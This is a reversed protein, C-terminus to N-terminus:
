EAIGLARKINEELTQAPYEKALAIRYAQQLDSNITTASQEKLTDAIGGILTEANPIIETVTGIVRNLGNAGTGRITQGKRAEFLRFNSEGSLSQLGRGLRVITTEQIEAGKDVSAALIELSEGASARDALSAMLEGLMTNTKDLRWNTLAQEKIDEFPRQVSEKIKDVRVAAIGQTKTEFIDGEFGIDGTFIETLILDSKSVGALDNIGVMEDGSETQGARSVFDFSAASIGNVKAAEEISNGEALADQVKDQAEYIFAQAKETKLEQLIAARQSELNPTEGATIGTVIVAYWTGLSGEVTQATNIALKFAAEGTNPDTTASQLIDTYVIPEDLSMDATVTEVDNGANLTATVVDATAKDTLVFQALSRTEEKGLSGVEVKYDFQTKIEEESVEMDALIDSPEVRLLTFKRYEPAIYATSHDEIFVKLEEDTPDAGIDIADPSLHLLKVKRQETMYKYQQEAYDTPAIIGSTISDLTQGQRLAKYVRAEYQKRTEGNRALSQALKNKDFKGTIIDNYAELGEIFNVADRRNVSVGLDDADIQLLKETILQNAIRDAFGREYAQKTSIRADPNKQNETRLSDSFFKEFEYLTIKDDGVLVAADRTKPTFVDTVGWMAFSLVILGIMAGFLIKSIRSKISTSATSDSM